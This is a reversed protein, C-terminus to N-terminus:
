LFTKTKEPSADYGDDTVNVDDVDDSDYGINSEADSDTESDMEIDIEIDTESCLDSSTDSDLELGVSGDSSNDSNNDINVDTESDEDFQANNNDSNVPTKGDLNMVNAPTAVNKLFTKNNLSVSDSDIATNSMKEEDSNVHVRIDFLTCPRCDSVGALFM